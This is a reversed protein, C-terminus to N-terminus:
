QHYEWCQIQITIQIMNKTERKDIYEQGERQKDANPYMKGCQPDWHGM